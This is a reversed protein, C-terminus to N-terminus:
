LNEHLKRWIDQLVLICELLICATRKLPWRPPTYVGQVGVGGLCGCGGGTWMGRGLHMSSYVGGEAWTCLQSVGGKPLCVHTFVSGQRLKAPPLLLNAGGNRPTPALPFNTSGGSSRGTLLSARSPACVAQQVYAKKLLFSKSVLKDLNPSHIKPHKPTPFDPGLYCGLEPRM